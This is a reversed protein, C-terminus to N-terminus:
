AIGEKLYFPFVLNFENNTTRVRYHVKILLKGQYPDDADPGVDVDLVDIRPEFQTLADRVNAEVLALTGTNIPEFILEHIGCGFAPRMVREGRATRLIIQIAEKIDQEGQSFVVHGLSNTRVPFKWGTGQFVFDM